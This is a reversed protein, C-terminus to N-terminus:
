HWKQFKEEMEIDDVGCYFQAIIKAETYVIEITDVLPRIESLENETIKVVIEKLIAEIKEKAKIAAKIALELNELKLEIETSPTTVSAVPAPVSSAAQFTDSM